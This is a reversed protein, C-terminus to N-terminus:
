NNNQNKDRHKELRYKATERHTGLVRARLKKTKIKENNNSETKHNNTYEFIIM